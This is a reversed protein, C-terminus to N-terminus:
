MKSKSRMGEVIEEIEEQVLAEERCPDYMRERIYRDLEGDSLHRIALERDVNSAQAARIVGRTVVVSVDRIRRVDPYLWGDAIEQENLSGALSEASAYIMEQTVKVAKSLIAGLGIGPFVYMNNGQGPTYTKGKFLLDPFPSGSAFIARGDTYMMADAFTCESSNSPNSLPFIVPKANLQGMKTLLAPTFAGGVTSLGMLITPKVYDVVEELARLQKGGNDTRMFYTKHDALKDGRDSTVLGQTYTDIIHKYRCM